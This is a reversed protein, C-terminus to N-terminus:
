PALEPREIFYHEFAPAVVRAGTRKVVFHNGGCHDAHAHTNVVARVTRGENALANVVKRALNEDLGSDILLADNGRVAVGICTSANAYRVTDNVQEFM